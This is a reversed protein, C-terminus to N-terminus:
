NKHQLFFRLMERSADPGAPDSYSGEASGGSWAHAAGHVLWHEIVTDGRDTRYVSRTYTRGSAQGREVSHRAPAAKAADAILEDGNSPHVTVDRDGHFVITPVVRTGSGGSAPTLRPSGDGRMASFASPVDHASAYALGSHIGVAAYVDPYTTAMVAAMAGGASLGAIYVRHADGGYTAVVERTIGAIISPEGAERQQHRSEFWNWCNSNNAKVAQKPYVVVLGHEEALLNMRTAAAFDEPGQKCGHLMVVVPLGQAAHRVPVYVKYRRTGAANTFSHTAFQSQAKAPPSSDVVRFLGEIVEGDHPRSPPVHSAPTSALRGQLARQIAHTAEALRGGRVLRTAGLIAEPIKLNM